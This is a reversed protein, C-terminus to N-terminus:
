TEGFESNKPLDERRVFVRFVEIKFGIQHKEYLGHIWQYNELILTGFFLSLIKYEKLWM